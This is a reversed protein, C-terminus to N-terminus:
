HHHGVHEELHSHDMPPVAGTPGYLVTLSEPTLVKQPPGCDYVRCNLCLCEDCYNALLSINHSSMM